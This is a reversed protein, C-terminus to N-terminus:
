VYKCVYLMQTPMFWVCVYVELHARGSCVSRKQELPTVRYVDESRMREQRKEAAGIQAVAETKSHVYLRQVRFILRESIRKM